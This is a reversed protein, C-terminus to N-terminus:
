IRRIALTDIPEIGCSRALALGAQESAADSLHKPAHADFGLIVANGEEAAIQWFREVPYHRGERIGLLNIELPTGTEIAARCLRRM